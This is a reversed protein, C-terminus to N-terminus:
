KGRRAQHHEGLGVVDIDKHEERSFRRAQPGWSTINFYDVKFLDRDAFQVRGRPGELSGSRPLQRLRPRTM